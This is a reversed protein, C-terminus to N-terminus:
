KELIIPKTGITVKHTSAITFTKGNLDRYHGYTSAATYTSSGDTNWVIQGTYGGSRTIKCAYVGHYITGDGGTETCQSPMTAGKLWNYVQDYAKAAKTKGGTASWLTGWTPNDWAYWYFRTVGYNWHLIFHRALFAAQQDPDTISRTENGWSAETDYLLKGQLGYTNMLDKLPKTKFGGISEPVDNNVVDPYGHLSVIDVDRTGGSSWYSDMYSKSIASPSAILASPDNARIDDHEHQTLTIMDNVTGTFGNCDPENWLEYIQIRGKYRKVLANVFDDWDKINAVTSTCTYPGGVYPISCTNVDKAAWMPVYAQSYLFSMGHSQALDVYADLTSWDYVGRSLEVFPWSVSSGKGLAGFSSTPWDTTFIIHMGFYTSPIPGVAPEAVQTQSVGILCLLLVLVASVSTPLSVLGQFKM